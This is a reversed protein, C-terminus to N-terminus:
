SKRKKHGPCNCAGKLLKGTENTFFVRWLLVDQDIQKPKEWTVLACRFTEEIKHTCDECTKM